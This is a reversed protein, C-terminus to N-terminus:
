ALHVKSHGRGGFMVVYSRRQGTVKNEKAKVPGEERSDAVERFKAENLHPHHLGPNRDGNLRCAKVTWVSPPRNFCAQYPAAVTAFVRWRRKNKRMVRRLFVDAPPILKM